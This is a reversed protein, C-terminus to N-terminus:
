QQSGLCTSALQITGTSEANDDVSDESQAEKVSYWGMCMFVLNKVCTKFHALALMMLM